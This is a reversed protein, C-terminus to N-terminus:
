VTDIYKNKIWCDLTAPRASMKYVVDTRFSKKKVWVVRVNEDDGKKEQTTCISVGCYHDGGVPNKKKVSKLSSYHISKNSCSKLSPPGPRIITPKKKKSLFHSVNFDGPENVPFLDANTKFDHSM